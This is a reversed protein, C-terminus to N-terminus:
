DKKNTMEKKWDFLVPSLHIYELVNKQLLQSTWMGDTTLWLLAGSKRQNLVYESKPGNQEIENKLNQKCELASVTIIETEVRKNSLPFELRVEWCPHQKETQQQWHNLIYVFFLGLFSQCRFNVLIQDFFQKGTYDM